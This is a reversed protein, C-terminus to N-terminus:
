RRRQAMQHSRAVALKAEEESKGRGVELPVACAGPTRGVPLCLWTGDSEEHVVLEYESFRPFRSDDPCPRWTSGRRFGCEFVELENDGYERPIAMREILRAGCTPCLFEEGLSRLEQPSLGCQLTSVDCGYVAALTQLSQLSPGGEGSEMRQITRLSLDSVQALHEQTWGAQERLAKLREAISRKM